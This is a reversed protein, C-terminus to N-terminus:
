CMLVDACTSADAVTPGSAIDIADDGPVDSLLFNIFRAPHWTASKFTDFDRSKGHGTIAAGRGERQTHVLRKAFQGTRSTPAERQAPWIAVGPM